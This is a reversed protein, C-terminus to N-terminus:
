GWWGPRSSAVSYASRGSPMVPLGVPQGAAGRVGIKRIGGVGPVGPYAGARSPAIGAHGYGGYMKSPESHRSRRGSSEVGKMAAAARARAEQVSSARGRDQYGYAAHSARSDRSSRHRSHSSGRSGRSGSSGRSSGRGKRHRSSSDKSAEYPSISPASAVPPLRSGGVRSRSRPPNDSHPPVQIGPRDRRNPPSPEGSSLPPLSSGDGGISSGRRSQLEEARNNATVPWSEPSNPRVDPYCPEPLQKTIRRRNRPVQITDMLRASETEHQLQTKITEDMRERLLGRWKKVSPMSLMQKASPRKRPNQQLLHKVVDHLERSYTGPLAPYYGAQVRRSLDELDRGRFPPRGTALEYVVCGISWMDSRDDYPRNRWIEPSMYYPTGIQTKVLGHKALKSVNMDGIKLRGDLTLFCNATKIDRHYVKKSHLHDVGDLM